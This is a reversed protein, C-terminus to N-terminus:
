MYVYLCVFLHSHPSTCTCMCVFLHVDYGCICACAGVRSVKRIKRQQEVGTFDGLDGASPLTFNVLALIMAMCKKHGIDWLISRSQCFLSEFNKQWLESGLQYANILAFDTYTGIEQSSWAEWLALEVVVILQVRGCCMFFVRVCLTSGQRQLEENLGHTGAWYDLEPM